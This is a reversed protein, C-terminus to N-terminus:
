KINEKEINFNQIIIFLTSMFFPILPIKYRVLAGFNATSLGIFFSFIFSFAISFVIFTDSFFIKQMYNFGHKRWTFFSLFIVYLSLFLFISNELGSILMVPNRSEWIYPRFLGALVAPPTKSLVGSITPEFSGIDFSNRGYYSQKLDYQNIAAKKLMNDLSSYQGGLTEGMKLLLNIGGMLILIITVPVITTKIVKNKIISLNRYVLVLIFAGSIAFFIYPKLSLLIYAAFILLLINKFPKKHLVLINYFSVFILCTGMLTYSDKLIGSGWFLTSPIFLIAFASSKKSNPFHNYLLRFLSWLGSFTFTAILITSTIYSRGALFVFISSFRVTAYSQFDSYYVAEGIKSGFLSANEPTLHGFM